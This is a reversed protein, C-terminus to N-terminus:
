LVRSFRVGAEGELRGGRLCHEGKDVQNWDCHGKEEGLCLAKARATGEAQFM